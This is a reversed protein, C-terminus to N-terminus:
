TFLGSVFPCIITYNWKYSTDPITLNVSVSLVTTVLPQLSPFILLQKISEMLYSPLFARIHPKM